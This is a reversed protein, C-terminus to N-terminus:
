TSAPARDLIPDMTKKLMLKQLEMRKSRMKQKFEKKQENIM